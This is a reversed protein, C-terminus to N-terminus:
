APCGEEGGAGPVGPRRGAAILRVQHHPRVREDLFPDLEIAQAEHHDVLLVTEPDPLAVGQATLSAIRM